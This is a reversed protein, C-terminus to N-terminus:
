EPQSNGGTLRDYFLGSTGSEGPRTLTVRGKRLHNVRRRVLKGWRGFFNNDVANRWTMSPAPRGPRALRGAARSSSALVPPWPPLDLRPRGRRAVAPTALAM